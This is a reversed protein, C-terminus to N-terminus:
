RNVNGKGGPNLRVGLLVRWPLLGISFLVSELPLPLWKSLTRESSSDLLGKLRDNRIAIPEALPDHGVVPHPPAVQRDEM